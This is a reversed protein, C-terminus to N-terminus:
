RTAHALQGCEFHAPQQMIAKGPNTRRNEGGYQPQTRPLVPIRQRRTWLIGPKETLSVDECQYNSRV